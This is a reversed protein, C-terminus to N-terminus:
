PADGEAPEAPAPSAAAAAPEEDVPSYSAVLATFIAAVLPGLVIGIFGFASVGGMVSLILVLTNMQSKGSLLWPRVVNDVQGLVLIGVLVLVIGSVLSGSLALWAAAPLWVLTTGVLPVLALIGMMVGWLVAGPLGLLAFTVGGILGQLAAILLTSTVSASVLDSTLVFLRENQGAGFPLVRRLAAAFTPSDRVLFFLVALMIVLDLLFGAVGKLLWGARAGVFGALGGLSQVARSIVEEEPPLFSLRERLWQWGQHLWSAAGGSSQLQAEVYAVAPGAQKVLATAVFVVPVVLLLLVLVTLLLASRTPGLRRVLRERAPALVIALVVAWGIDVLFPQVMRYALYGILILSGYFFLQSVREAQPDHTM